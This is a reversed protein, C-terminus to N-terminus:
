SDRQPLQRRRMHAEGRLGNINFPKAEIRLVNKNRTVVIGDDEHAKLQEGTKADTFGDPSNNVLDFDAATLGKISKPNSVTIEIAEVMLAGIDGVKTHAIVNEVVAPEKPGGCGALAIVSACIILNKFSM